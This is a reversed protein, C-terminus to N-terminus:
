PVHSGRHSPDVRPDARPDPRGRAAQSTRQSRSHVLVPRHLLPLTGPICPFRLTDSNMAADCCVAASGAAGDQRVARCTPTRSPARPQSRTALSSGQLPGPSTPESRPYSPSDLHKAARLWPGNEPELPRGCAEAGGRSGTRRVEGAQREQKPVKPLSQTMGWIELIFERHELGSM